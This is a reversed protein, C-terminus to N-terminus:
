LDGDEIAPLSDHLLLDVFLDKDYVVDTDAIQPTDVLDDNPLSVQAVTFTEEPDILSHNPRLPHLCSLGLSQRPTRPRLRRVLWHKWGEKPGPWGLSRSPLWRNLHRAPM